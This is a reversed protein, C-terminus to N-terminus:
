VNHSINKGVANHGPSITPASAHVRRVRVTVLPVTELILTALRPFLLSFCYLAGSSPFRSWNSRCSRFQLPIALKRASVYVCWVPFVGVSPIGLFLAILQTLNAKLLQGLYPKQPKQKLARIHLSGRGEM